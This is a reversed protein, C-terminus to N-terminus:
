RTPCFGHVGRNENESLDRLEKLHSERKPSKKVLKCVKITGFTESLLWLSKVSYGVAINLSHGYCNHIFANQIQILYFRLLKDRIM